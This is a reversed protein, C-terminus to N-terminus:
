HLIGGEDWLHECFGEVDGLGPTRTRHQHVDGLGSHVLLGGEGPRGSDVQRAVVGHSLRVALLDTFSCSKDGFGFLGDEHHTAANDTRIRGLFKEVENGEGTNRDRAGKHAKIGERLTMREVVTHRTHVAGDGGDGGQLLSVEDNGEPGAKIVTNRAVELEKGWIRLDNM